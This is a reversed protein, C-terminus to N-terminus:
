TPPGPAAPTGMILLAEERGQHCRDTGPKQGQEPWNIQTSPNASRLSNRPGPPAESSPPPPCLLLLPLPGLSAPCMGSAATAPSPPPTAVSPQAGTSTAPSGQAEEKDGQSEKFEGWVLPLGEREMRRGM